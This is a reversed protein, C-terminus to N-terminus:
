VSRLIKTKPDAIFISLCTPVWGHASYLRVAAPFWLASCLPLPCCHVSSCVGEYFCCTTVSFVPQRIFSCRTLSLGLGASCESDIQRQISVVVFLAARASRQAVKAIPSTLLPFSTEAASTRTHSHILTPYLPAHLSVTHWVVLDAWGWLPTPKRVSYLWKFGLDSSQPQSLSLLTPGSLSLKPVHTTHAWDTHSPTNQISTQRGTQGWNSPNRIVPLFYIFLLVFSMGVGM